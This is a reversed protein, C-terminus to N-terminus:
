DYTVVAYTCDIVFSDPREIQHILTIAGPRQQSIQYNKLQLTPQSRGATCSTKESEQLSCSHFVYASHSSDLNIM